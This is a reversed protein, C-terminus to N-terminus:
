ARFQILQAQNIDSSFTGFIVNFDFILSISVVGAAHNPAISRQGNTTTHATTQIRQSVRASVLMLM